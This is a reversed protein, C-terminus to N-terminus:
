ADDVDMGMGGMGKVPSSGEVRSRRRYYESQRARKKASLLVGAGSGGSSVRVKAGGLSSRAVKAGLSSRTKGAGAGSVVRAGSNSTANSGSGSGSGSASGSSPGAARERQSALRAIVKSRSIRPKRGNLSRQRTAPLDEGRAGPSLVGFSMSPGAPAPPSRVPTFAHVPQSFIKGKTQPSFPTPSKLNITNFTNNTNNTNNTNPPVPAPTTNTIVGLASNPKSSPPPSRVPISSSPTANQQQESLAKSVGANRSMKALSSATPAFLRSASSMRSSSSGTAGPKGTPANPLQASLKKVGMSGAAGAASSRATSLRTGISSVHASSVRSNATGIVSAKRALSPGSTKSTQTGGNSALSSRVSHAPGFTPIPSRSRASSAATPRTVNSEISKSDPKLSAGGAPAPTPKAPPASKKLLTSPKTPAKPIANSTTAAAQPAKGRGWVSQVLSKASSLFAFRSPKPKPQAAISPRGSLRGSRRGHLGPGTSSRRKAKNMELKRKIAMRQKEERDEDEVRAAEAEAANAEAKEDKADSIIRIRKGAREDPHQDAADDDDDDDGGFAGPITKKAARKSVVRTGSARAGGPRRAGEAIAVVSSKRKKGILVSKGEEQPQVAARRKVFSDIGEMKQFEDQHAQNFKEKVEGGRARPMPKVERPSVDGKSGSVGPHLRGILSTDVGEVGDEKLRKNMEELVSAAASKFQVDSVRHQPLPSGFVFPDPSRALSRAAPRPAEIVGDMQSLPPSTSSPKQLSTLSPPLDNLTLTPYLSGAPTPSGMILDFSTKFPELRPTDSVGGGFLNSTSTRDKARNVLRITTTPQSPTSPAGGLGLGLSLRGNSPAPVGPRLAHGPLPAEGDALFGDMSMRSPNFALPVDVVPAQTPPLTSYPQSTQELEETTEEATEMATESKEFTVTASVTSKPSRSGHGKKLKGLSSALSKISSGLKSSSGTGFEGAVGKNGSRTSRSSGVTGQAAASEDEEAISYMVVEWDSLRTNLGPRLQKNDPSPSPSSEEGGSEHDENKPENDNSDDDHDNTEGRVAISLPDDKPLTEAHRKLKEILDVNKGSAKIAHIKCLKVLQDRKLSHLAPSNFLIQTTSSM